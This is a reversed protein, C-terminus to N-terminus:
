RPTAPPLEPGSTPGPAETTPAAVTERSGSLPLWRATSEDGYIALQQVLGFPDFVFRYAGRWSVRRLDSRLRGPDVGALPGRLTATLTMVTVAENRDFYMEEPRVLFETFSELYLSFMSRIAPRGVIPTPFRPGGLVVSDDAFLEM